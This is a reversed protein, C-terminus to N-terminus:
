SNSQKGKNDNNKMLNTKPVAGPSILTWHKSKTTEIHGNAWLIKTDRNGTYVGVEIILGICSRAARHHVLDGVKM